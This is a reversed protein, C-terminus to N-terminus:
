WHRHGYYGGGYYGGGYYGSPAVIVAPRAYYGPPGYPAIVCGTLGACLVLVLLILRKM